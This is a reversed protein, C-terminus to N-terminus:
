LILHFPIYQHTLTHVHPHTHENGLRSAVSSCFALLSNLIPLSLLIFFLSFLSSIYHSYQLFSVLSSLLSVSSSFPSSSLYHSSLSFSLVSILYHSFPFFHSRIFPLLSRCSFPSNQLRPLSLPLLLSPPFYPHFPRFAITEFPTGDLLSIRGYMGEGM